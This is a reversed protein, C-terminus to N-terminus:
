GSRRSAGSKMYVSVVIVIHSYYYDSQFLLQRSVSKGTLDQLFNSDRKIAALGENMFPEKGLLARHGAVAEGSMFRDFVDVNMDLSKADIQWFSFLHCQLQIYDDGHRM